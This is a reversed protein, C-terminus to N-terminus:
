LWSRSVYVPEVEAQPVMSAIATVVEGIERYDMSDDAVFLLGPYEPPEFESLFDDDGTLILRDSAASESAISADDSGKGLSRHSEVHVADHGDAELRPVVRQDVNEDVLIRYTM